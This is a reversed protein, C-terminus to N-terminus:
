RFRYAIIPQLCVTNVVWLPVNNWMASLTLPLVVSRFCRTRSGSRSTSHLVQHYHDM